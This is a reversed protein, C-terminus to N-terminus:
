MVDAYSSNETLFGVYQKRDNLYSAIWKIAIGRVGMYEVKKLLIGYDITHLAKRPDVFIGLASLKNDLFTSVKQSLDLLAITTSRNRRHGYQNDNFVNDKKLM